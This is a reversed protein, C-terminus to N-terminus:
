IVLSPRSSSHLWCCSLLRCNCSQFQENTLGGGAPDNRLERLLALGNELESAGFRESFLSAKVPMFLGKMMAEGELGLEVLRRIADSEPQKM